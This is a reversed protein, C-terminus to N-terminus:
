KKVEKRKKNMFLVIGVIIAIVLLIILLLGKEDIGINDMVSPPAVDLIM